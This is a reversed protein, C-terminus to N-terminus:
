LDKFLKAGCYRCNKEQETYGDVILCERCKINEHITIPTIAQRGRKKEKCASPKPKEEILKQEIPREQVPAKPMGISTKPPIGQKGEASVIRVTEASDLDICRKCKPCELKSKDKTKLYVRIGKQLCEKCLM